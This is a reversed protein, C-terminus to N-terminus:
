TLIHRWFCTSNASCSARARKRPHIGAHIYTPPLTAGAQPLCTPFLGGPFGPLPAHIAPKVLHRAPHEDEHNDNGSQPFPKDLGRSPQARRVGPNRGAGSHRLPRPNLHCIQWNADIAGDDNWRFSSDLLAAGPHYVSESVWLANGSQPFSKDLGRSEPRRRFSSPPLCSM